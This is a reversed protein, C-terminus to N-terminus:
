KPMILIDVRRNQERGEATDNSAVPRSGGYGITKIASPEIDGKYILYNKVADARQHSLNHNKGKTGTNDTHGEILIDSGPYSKILDVVSDLTKKDNEVIDAKDEEFHLHLSVKDFNEAPTQQSTRMGSCGLVFGLTSLCVILFSMKLFRDQMKFGGM